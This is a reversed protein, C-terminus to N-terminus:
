APSLQLVTNMTKIFASFEEIKAASSFRVRVAATEGSYGAQGVHAIGLRALRYWSQGADEESDAHDQPFGPSALLYVALLIATLRHM